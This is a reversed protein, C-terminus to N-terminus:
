SEYVEIGWQKPSWSLCQEYKKSKNNKKLFYKLEVQCPMKRYPDNVELYETDIGKAVVYHDSTGSTEEVLCYLIVPRQKKIAENIQRIKDNTDGELEEYKLNSIKSITDMMDKHGTRGKDKKASKKILKFDEETVSKGKPKWYYDTVMKICYPGCDSENEQYYIPVMRKLRM